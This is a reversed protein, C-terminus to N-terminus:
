KQLTEAILALARGVEQRNVVIESSIGELREINQDLSQSVEKISQNFRYELADLKENIATSENSLKEQYLQQGQTIQERIRSFENQYETMNEGFILDRVASLRERENMEIGSKDSSSNTKGM